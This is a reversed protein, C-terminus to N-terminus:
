WGEITLSGSDFEVDPYSEQLRNVYSIPRADLISGEQRIGAAKVVEMAFHVCSHGMIDYPVRNPNKNERVRRQAYALMDNYKGPTEIYVGSVRGRQGAVRSINQFVAILSGIDPRGDKFVCDPM